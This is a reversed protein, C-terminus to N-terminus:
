LGWRHIFLKVRANENNLTILDPLEIHPFNAYHLFQIEWGQQTLKALRHYRDFAAQYPINPVPLGRIWYFLNSIPVNWGTRQRLLQDPTAASFRQGTATELMTKGPQGHLIAAPTGVPGYLWITYHPHREQWKITASGSDTATRVAIKGSIDWHQLEALTKERLSWSTSAPPPPSFPSISACSTLFLVLSLILGFPIYKNIM